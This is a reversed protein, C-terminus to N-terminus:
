AAVNAFEGFLRRLRPEYTAFAGVVVPDFQRGDQGLIEDIADEWRLAKRYPRDTTMADLTDAVAFIRAGLAIETGALGNPYGAGDWREHHSRVVELGQGQLLAVAALIEAGVVPHQQVLDRERGTLPGPKNLIADPVAIKGIDHLLFGHELSPDDLLTRDVARTIELAYRQVRVAHLSTRSDKAELADALAGTTQRYAQQLLRRQRREIDLLRSLDRAYLLLQGADSDAPEPPDGGHGHSLRDLLGLLELPSFPKRLFGDAGASAAEAETMDAGTLLIVTPPDDRGMRKLERCLALGDGDALGVDVIAAAPRRFRALAEAEVAGSAEEVELEDLALTTRLLLRLSPDDDVVLVRRTPVDPAEDPEQDPAQAAAAPAPPEVPAPAGGGARQARSRRSAALGGAAFALVAVVVAVAV